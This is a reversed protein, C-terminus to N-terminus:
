LSVFCEIKLWFVLASLPRDGDFDGVIEGTLEGIFRPVDPTLALFCNSRSLRIATVFFFEFDGILFDSPELDGRLRRERLSPRM